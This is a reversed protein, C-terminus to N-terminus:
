KLEVEMRHRLPGLILADRVVEITVKEGVQRDMLALRVDTYSTIKRDDISFITDGEKVGAEEAGSEHSFGSVEPPSGETNLFVGLKGSPPLGNRRTMILFDGMEPDVTSGSRANIVIASSVPVRRKLRNPIGSGYLLHGVGALIVMHGDPHERLWAAAREAMGEDWLLQVDLFREFDSSETKPHQDFIHQLRSRYAEDGRDIEQPIRAKQEESLSELGGEKVQNTIEREVNLAILPIGHERAYQFIPRYLRYDYSWREFYESGRIFETEDIKGAIYDDLVSQFPQQFFELGIALVPHHAHQSEIVALQNLHHEYRDHKEGVFIVRRDVVQEIMRDLGILSSLDIVRPADEESAVVEGLVAMLLGTILLKKM